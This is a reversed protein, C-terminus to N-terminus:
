EDPDYARYGLNGGLPAETLNPCSGAVIHLIHDGDISRLTTGQEAM